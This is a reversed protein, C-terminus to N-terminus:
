QQPPCVVTPSVPAAPAPPLDSQSINAIGQLGSYIAGSVAQLGSQIVGTQAQAAESIDGAANVAADAQASLDAAKQAVPQVAQQAYGAAANKAQNKAADIAAGVQKKPSYNSLISGADSSSFLSRINGGIRGAIASVTALFGSPGATGTTNVGIDRPLFFLGGLAIIVAGITIWKGM